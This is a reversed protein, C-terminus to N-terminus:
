KEHNDGNDNIAHCVIPKRNNQLVNVDTKLTTGCWEKCKVGRTYSLTGVDVYNTSM